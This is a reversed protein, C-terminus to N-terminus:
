YFIHKVNRKEIHLQCCTFYRLMIREPDDWKSSLIWNAFLDTGKKLETEMYIFM